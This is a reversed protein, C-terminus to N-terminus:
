PAKKRRRHIKRVAELYQLFEHGHGFAIQGGSGTFALVEAGGIYAAV